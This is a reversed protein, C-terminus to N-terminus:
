SSTLAHAVRWVRVKGDAAANALWEGDPSFCVAYVGKVPVPLEALKKGEPSWLTVRKEGSTSLCRGKPDAAVFLYGPSKADWEREVRPTAGDVRWIRVHGGYDGTALRGDPLEAIGIVSTEHGPMEGVRAGDPLTWLTVSEGFGALAMRGDRLFTPWGLKKLGPDLAGTVKGQTEDYLFVRESRAKALALLPARPAYWAGTYKDLTERVVGTRADRLAVRDDSGGTAMRAGDPSFSITNVSKDHGEVDAEVAWTGARWRRLVGEMGGTWLDGGPSWALASAHRRSAELIADPQPHAM